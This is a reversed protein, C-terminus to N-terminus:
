TSTGRIQSFLLVFELELPPDVRNEGSKISTFPEHVVDPIYNYHAALM